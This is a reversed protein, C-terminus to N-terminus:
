KTVLHWVCWSNYMIWGPEPTDQLSSCCDGALAQPATLSQAGMDGRHNWTHGVTVWAATGWWWMAEHSSLIFLYSPFMGLFLPTPLLRLYVKNLQVKLGPRAPLPWVDWLLHPLSSQWTQTMGDWLSRINGLLNWELNSMVLFEEYSSPLLSSVRHHLFQFLLVEKFFFYYHHHWCSLSHILPFCLFVQYDM